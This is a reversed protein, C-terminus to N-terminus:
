KIGITLLLIKLYIKKFTFLYLFLFKIILYIRLLINDIINNHKKYYLIQSVKSYFYTSNEFDENVNEGKYHVINSFPFFYNTYGADTLRKCIDADEYFLFYNEDFGKVQNFVSKRIIMAAGTVWDVKAIERFCEEKESIFRLNRNRFKTEERKNESESFFNNEKWFSLQFTGDANYLKMGATGFNINEFKEIFLKLFDNKIITDANLFFLYDGSALEAGLNNAQSFGRNENDMVKLSGYQSLLGSLNEEPSNNIIIVEFPYSRFNNYISNVCQQTFEKQKYNIIIISIM